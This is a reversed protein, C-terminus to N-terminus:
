LLLALVAVAATVIATVAAVIAFATRRISRRLDAAGQERNDQAAFTAVAAKLEGIEHQVAAHERTSQLQGAAIESRLFGIETHLAEHSSQIKSELYERLSVVVGERDDARRLPHESM